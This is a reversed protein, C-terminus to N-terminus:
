SFRTLIDFEAKGLFIRHDSYVCLTHMLEFVTHLKYSNSYLVNLVHTGFHKASWYKHSKFSNGEGGDGEGGRYQYSIVQVNRDFMQICNEPHARTYM